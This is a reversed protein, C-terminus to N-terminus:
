KTIKMERDMTANLLQSAFNGTHERTEAQVWFKAFNILALTM